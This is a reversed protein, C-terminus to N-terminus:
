FQNVNSQRKEDYEKSSDMRESLDVKELHRVPIRILIRILKIALCHRKGTEFGLGQILNVILPPTPV